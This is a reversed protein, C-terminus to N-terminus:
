ESELNQKKIADRLANNDGGMKEFMFRLMSHHSRLMTLIRNKETEPIDMKDIESIERRTQLIETIM